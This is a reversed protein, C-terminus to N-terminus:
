EKGMGGADEAEEPPKKELRKPATPRSTSQKMDLAVPPAPEFASTRREPNTSASMESQVNITSWVRCGLGARTLRLFVAEFLCLFESLM